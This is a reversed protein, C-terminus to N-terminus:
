FVDNKVTISKYFITSLRFGHNRLSTDVAATVDAPDHISRFICLAQFTQMFKIKPFIIIIIKLTKYLNTGWFFAM